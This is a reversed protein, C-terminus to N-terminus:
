RGGVNDGSDGTEASGALTVLIRTVDHKDCLFGIQVGRVSHNLSVPSTGAAGTQM